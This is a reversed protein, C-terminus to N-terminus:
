KKTEEIPEFWYYFRMEMRREESRKGDGGTAKTYNASGDHVGYVRYRGAPKFEPEATIIGACVFEPQLDYIILTPDFEPKGKLWRTVTLVTQRKKGFEPPGDLGYVVAPVEDVAVQKIEGSATAVGKNMATVEFIFDSARECVEKDIIPAKKKGVCPPTDYTGCVMKMCPNYLKGCETALAPLAAIIVALMVVYRM